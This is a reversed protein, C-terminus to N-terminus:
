PVHRITSGHGHAAAAEGQIRLRDSPRHHVQRRALAGIGPLRDASQLLIKPSGLGGASLVFVEAPFMKQAGSKVDVGEAYAFRRGGSSVVRKVEVNPVVQLGHLKRAREILPATLFPRDPYLLAKPRFADGFDGFGDLLAVPAADITELSYRQEAGRLLAVARAYDERLERYAM